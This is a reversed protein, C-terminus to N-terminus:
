GRLLLSCEDALRMGARRYTRVAAENCADVHLCVVRRGDELLQRMVAAVLRTGLGKGRSDPATFVGEIMAGAPGVSGLDLKSYPKGAPGIVFTQEARIRERVSERLWSRNVRWPAVRLDSQNLELTARVLAEVDRRTALRVGGDPEGEGGISACADLSDTAYYQQRRFVLPAAVDRRAVVALPSEPGLAIRWDPGAMLVSAVRAPPLADGGVLILNGRGGFFVLGTDEGPERGLFRVRQALDSLGQPDSRGALLANAVYIGHVGAAEALGLAIPIDAPTLPRTQFPERDTM